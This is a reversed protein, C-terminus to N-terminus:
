LTDFLKLIKKQKKKVNPTAGAKTKYIYKM